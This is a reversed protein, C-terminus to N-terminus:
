EMHKCRRKGRGGRKGEGWIGRKMAGRGMVRRGTEGEENDGDGDGRGSARRGM